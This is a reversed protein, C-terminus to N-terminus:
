GVCVRVCGLLKRETYTRGFEPATGTLRRRSSPPAWRQQPRQAATLAPLVPASTSAGADGIAPLWLSALSRTARRM